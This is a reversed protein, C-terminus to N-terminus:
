RTPAATPGEAPPGEHRELPPGPAEAPADPAPPPLEGRRRAPATGSAFDIGLLSEPDVYLGAVRASWHLHPGTSRGTSGIRGIREGRKVKAGPAVDFRDLHFYITFVDAGHWLVVSRGSFYADRALVVEGDAAALVPAGRPGSLDLGYHVSEKKGNLIRQDGFRGTARSERPWGFGRAFRPAAFPRDWAAAFARRDREIRRRVNAPPEVFRPAVTLARSTFGPEVVTLAAEARAGGAEVAVPVPGPPLEIPLAALARWEEGARWFVLPRGALAGSPEAGADSVRVLVADGPRAEAPALTLAPASPAALALGIAFTLAAPM